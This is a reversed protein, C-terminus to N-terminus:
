IRVLGIAFLAIPLWNSKAWELAKKAKHKYPAPLREKGGFELDALGQTQSIFDYTNM